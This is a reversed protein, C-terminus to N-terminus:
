NFRPVQHTYIAKIKRTKVENNRVVRGCLVVQDEDFDKVTEDEFWIYLGPYNKILEPLNKYFLYTQKNLFIYEEKKGKELYFNKLMEEEKPTIKEEEILKRATELIRPDEESWEDEINKLDQTDGIKSTM